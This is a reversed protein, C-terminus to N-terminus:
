PAPVARVDHNLQGIHSRLRRIEAERSELMGWLQVIERRLAARASEHEIKLARIEVSAEDM